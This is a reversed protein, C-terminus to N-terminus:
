YVYHYEKAKSCYPITNCNLFFSLTIKGKIQNVLNRIVTEVCIDKGGMRISEM